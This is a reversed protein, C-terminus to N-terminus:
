QIYADLLQAGTIMQWYSGDYVFGVVAGDYWSLGPVNGTATTGYRYINKAGTSNVNLTPNSATNRYTFKVFIFAGTELVFNSLTVAKAATSYSTSCTGFPYSCPTPVGQNFYISKYPNGFNGEGNVFLKNVNVVNISTTAYRNLIVRYYEGSPNGSGDKRCIFNVIDNTKIGLEITGSQASGGKKIKEVGNVTIQIWDYSLSESYVSWQISLVLNTTAKWSMTPTISHHDQTGTPNWWTNTSNYTWPYTTDNSQQTFYSTYNSSTILTPSGTKTFQAGIQLENNPGLSMDGTAATLLGNSGIKILKGEPSLNSVQLSGNVVTSKLQAM